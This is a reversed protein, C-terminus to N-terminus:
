ILFEFIFFDIVKNQEGRNQETRNEQAARNLKLKILNHCHNNEITSTKISRDHTIVILMNKELSKRIKM